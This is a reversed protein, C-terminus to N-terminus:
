LGIKQKLRKLLPEPPPTDLTVNGLDNTVGPTAYFRTQLQHTWSNVPGGPTAPMPIIRNLILDGPPANTVVFVGKADTKTRSNFNIHPVGSQYWNGDFGLMLEEGVVPVGQTDVLTGTVVSWPELKIRMKPGLDALEVIQWGERHSAFIRKGDLRKPFTFAGTEDATGIAERHGYDMLEGNANLGFQERSAGYVVRAGVAPRGDPLLVIGGLGASKSLRVVLGNTSTPVPGVVVPEYGAAAVQILPQSTLLEFELDLKGNTVKLERGGYWFPQENWPIAPDRFQDLMRQLFPKPPKAAIPPQRGPVVEFSKLAAGTADDVVTGTLRILSSGPEVGSIPRNQSMDQPPLMGQPRSNYNREGPEIELWLEPARMPLQGVLRWPNYDDLNRNRYSLRWGRTNIGIDIQGPHLGEFEFRGDPKTQVTQSDWATDFSATVTVPEPPVTHGVAPVVKGTLKIAPKVELDGVENTSGHARTTALRPPVSGFTKLSEIKGYLNWSTDPPLHRFVFRGEADAVTEYNGAYVMSNRDSGSVGVKVNPVPQGDKVIRGAIVGGVGLEVVQVENTVPLWLKAPALGPANISLQLRDFPETRHLAFEGEGNSVALPSFGQSGGWRTGTGTAVGQPQIRAGIVPEGAADQLRVRVFIAQAPPPAAPKLRIEIAGRLPDAGLYTGPAYGDALATLEYNFEDTTRQFVFRGNEDTFQVEGDSPDQAGRDTAATNPRRLGTVVVTAGALPEGDFGRVVGQASAIKGTRPNENPVLYNPMTFTNTRRPANAPGHTAALLMWGSQTGQSHLSLRAVEKGPQPNAFVSHYLRLGREFQVSAAMESRWVLHTDPDLIPDERGWRPGYWDRVHHGHKIPLEAQAGDAYHLRVVAIATGDETGWATAGLLHLHEFTAGVEIATVNTRGANGSRASGGGWLEVVGSIKWPVGNMVHEGVPVAWPADVFDFQSPGIHPSLDIPSLEAAHGPHAPTLLLTLLCVSSSTKM